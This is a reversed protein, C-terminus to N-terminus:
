TPRKAPDPADAWAPEGDPGPFPGLRTTAPNSTAKLAERAVRALRDRPTRLAHLEVILELAERLTGYQEQLREYGEAAVCDRCKDCRCPASLHELLGDAREAERNRASWMQRWVRKWRDIVTRQNELQERLSECMENLADIEALQGITQQQHALAEQKAEDRELRAGEYQEELGTIKTHAAALARGMAESSDRAGEYQEELGEIHTLADSLYANAFRVVHGPPLNERDAYERSAQLTGTRVEQRHEPKGMARVYSTHPKHEASM